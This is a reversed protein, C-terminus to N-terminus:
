MYLKSIVSIKIKRNLKEKCIKHVSGQNTKNKGSLEKRLSTVKYTKNEPIEKPNNIILVYFYLQHEWTAAPAQLSGEVEM